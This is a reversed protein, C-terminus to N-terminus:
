KMGEFPMLLERLKGAYLKELLSHLNNISRICEEKTIINKDLSYAVEDLDLIEIRNDNYIKVDVLLDTFIYKTEKIMTDIIDCYVYQKQGNLYFESVKFGENMYYISRGSDFDKRKKLTEWETIIINSDMYKIKDEDLLICEYPIFRKRYLEIM